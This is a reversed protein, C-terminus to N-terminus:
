HVVEMRDLPWLRWVVKGVIQSREVCGIARVRSDVSETRNDGLVFVKNEPVEYPFEQNCKGLNKETVYPEDLLEGNVYVNGEQDIEIYDGACGIVRKLLIEGGYYFGIVDGAEVEKTQYVFVIEGSRMTPMMSSGNVELLMFFRTVLLAAIAAAVVLVGAIGKLTKRFDRKSEVRELEARLLEVPPVVVKKEPRGEVEDGGSELGESDIRKHRKAERSGGDELKRRKESDM